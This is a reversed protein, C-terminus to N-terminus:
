ARTSPTITSATCQTPLGHCGVLKGGGGAALRSDGRHPRRGPGGSEVLELEVVTRAAGHQQRLARVLGAVELAQAFAEVVGGLREDLLPRVAERRIERILVAAGGALGGVLDGDRVDGVGVAHAVAVRGAAVAPAEAAGPRDLEGAAVHVGAGARGQM